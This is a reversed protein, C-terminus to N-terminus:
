EPPLAPRNSPEPLAPLPPLPTSGSPEASTGLLRSILGGFGTSEPSLEALTEWSISSVALAYVDEYTLALGLVRGWSLVTVTTGDDLSPHPQEFSVQTLGNRELARRVLGFARYRARSREPTSALGALEAARGFVYADVCNRNYRRFFEVLADDRTVTTEVSPLEDLIHSRFRDHTHAVETVETLSCQDDLHPQLAAVADATSGYRSFHIYPILHGAVTTTRQVDTQLQRFSRGSM